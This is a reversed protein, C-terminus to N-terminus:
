PAPPPPPIRGDPALAPSCGLVTYSERITDFAQARLKLDAGNRAAMERSQPTDNNILVTYLPCLAEENQTRDSRELSKQTSAMHVAAVALAIAAGVVLVTLGYLIHMGLRVRRARAILYDTRGAVTALETEVQASVSQIRTVLTNCTDTFERLAERKASDLHDGSSGGSTPNNTM